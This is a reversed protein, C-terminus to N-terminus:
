TGSRHLIASLHSEVKSNLTAVESELIPLPTAYRDGIEFVRRSLRQAVRDAEDEVAARIAAGWKDSVVLTKVEFESLAAYKEKVAKYLTAYARKYAADSKSVDM